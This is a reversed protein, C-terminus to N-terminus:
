RKKGTFKYYIRSGSTIFAFSAFIGLFPHLVLRFRPLGISFFTFLTLAVVLILWLIVSPSGGRYSWLFGILGAIAILLYSLDGNRDPQWFHLPQSLAVAIAKIPHDKIWNMAKKKLGRDRDVEGVNQLESPIPADWWLGFRFPSSYSTAIDSYVPYYIGGGQTTFPVFAGLELFNRGVWSLWLIGVICTIFLIEKTSRLVILLWLFIIPIVAGFNVRTLTSLGLFSGVIVSWQWNTHNRLRELAFMSCVVLFVFLTETMIFNSYFVLSPDLGALVGALSGVWFNFVERGLLFVAVCTLVSIGVIFPYAVYPTSGFLSYIGSLLIPFVPMRYALLSSDRLRGTYILSIALRYYDDDDGYVFGQLGALAPWTMKVRVISAILIIGLVTLTERKSMLNIAPKCILYVHKM